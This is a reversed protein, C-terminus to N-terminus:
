LDMTSRNSAVAAFGVSSFRSANMANKSASSTSAQAQRMGYSLATGAQSAIISAQQMIFNSTPLGSKKSQGNDDPAADAAAPAVHPTSAPAAAPATVPPAAPAATQEEPALHKAWSSANNNQAPTPLSATTPTYDEEASSVSSTPITAVPVESSSSEAATAAAPGSNNGPISASILTLNESGGGGSASPSGSVGGSAM